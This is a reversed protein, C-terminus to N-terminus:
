AGRIEDTRPRGSALAIHRQQRTGWSGWCCPRTSSQAEAKEIMHPVQHQLGLFVGKLNVGVIADFDAESLEQVTKGPIGANNFGIDIRGFRDFARKRFAAVDNAKRVDLEEFEIDVKPFKAKVEKVLSDGVEKGLGGVYLNAGAEAFALATARSIGTTGGIM